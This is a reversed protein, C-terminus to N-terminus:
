FPRAFQPNQVIKWKGDDFQKLIFDQAVEKEDEGHYFSFQMTTSEKPVGDGPRTIDIRYEPRQPRTADADAEACDCLNDVYHGIVNLMDHPPISDWEKEMTAADEGDKVALAVMEGKYKAGLKRIREEIAPSIMGHAAEIEDGIACIEEVRALLEKNPWKQVLSGKYQFIEDIRIARGEEDDLQFEANGSFFTALSGGYRFTLRQFEPTLAGSNAAATFEPALYLKFQDFNGDAISKQVALYTALAEERPSLSRQPSTKGSSNQSQGCGTALTLIGVSAFTAITGCHRSVFSM